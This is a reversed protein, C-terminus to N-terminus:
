RKKIIHKVVKKVYGHYLDKAIESVIVGTAIGFVLPLYSLLEISVSVM